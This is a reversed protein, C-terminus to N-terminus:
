YKGETYYLEGIKHSIRAESELENARQAIALSSEYARLAEELDFRVLEEAKDIYIEIM